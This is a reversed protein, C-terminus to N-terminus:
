AGKAKKIAAKASEIEITLECYECDPDKFSYGLAQERARYAEDCTCQAPLYALFSECAELLEPAASALRADAEVAISAVQPGALVRRGERDRVYHTYADAGEQYHWPGPTHKENKM